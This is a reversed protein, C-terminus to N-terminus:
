TTKQFSSGGLDDLCQEFFELKGQEYEYKELLDTIRSEIYDVTLVEGSRNKLQEGQQTKYLADEYSAVHGQYAKITKNSEKIKNHLYVKDKLKANDATARATAARDQYYESKKYEQFGKEYRALVKDKHRKFAQSGAHGAIIPQTLWSWDKRCENFDAQLQSARREANNSYEEYREARAEAKESKRELEEAYSLREGIAEVATFGLKEAVRKANYHNSTSRSVWAGSRSSWLYASKIDKKEADTLEQYAEKKLTYNLRIQKKILCIDAYSPM